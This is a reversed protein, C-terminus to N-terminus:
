AEPILNQRLARHLYDMEERVIPVEYGALRNQQAFAKVARETLANWKDSDILRACEACANWEQGSDHEASTGKLYVFSYCTYCKVFLAHSCFDCLKVPYEFGLDITTQM